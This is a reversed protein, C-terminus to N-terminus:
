SIQVPNYRICIRLGFVFFLFLYTHIGGHQPEGKDKALWFFGLLWGCVKVEPDKM